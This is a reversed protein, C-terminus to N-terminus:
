MDLPRVEKDELRYTKTPGITYTYHHQKVTKAKPYCAKTPEVISRYSRKNTRGM